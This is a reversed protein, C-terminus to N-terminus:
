DKKEELQPYLLYYYNLTTSDFDKNTKLKNIVAVAKDFESTKAYSAILELAGGEFLPINTNLQELYKRAAAKDNLLNSIIARYYDLFPDKGLSSDLKNVSELAKSYDKQTFYVDILMLHMNPENPYLQQYENIAKTNEEDGLEASAKLNYIQVIKGKRIEEPMADIIKKAEANRGSEMLDKVKKLQEMNELDKRTETDRTDKNFSFQIFLDGITKSFNEGTLYIFFDDIKVQGKVRTLQYDHYNLGNDSFLRFIIHQVKEKEYQRVFQYLGTKGISEIIKSGLRMSKGMGNAFSELESEKKTIATKRLLEKIDIANDLLKEDKKYISRELQKAFDLAEEKTVPKEQQKCSYLVVTLLALSTIKKICNM